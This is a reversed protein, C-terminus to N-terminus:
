RRRFGSRFNKSRKDYNSKQPTSNPPRSTQPRAVSVAITRGDLEHGDLAKIAAQAEDDNTMEVFGFGKSRTTVRDTIVHADAVAGHKEFFTRLGQDTTDFSLQAVFLKTSM